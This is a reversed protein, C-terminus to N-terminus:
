RRRAARRRRSRARLALLSLGLAPALQDRSARASRCACSSPPASPGRDPPAAGLDGAATDVGAVDRTAADMQAIGLDDRSPADADPSDTRDVTADVLGADRADADTVDDNAMDATAADVIGADRVPLPTRPPAATADLDRLQPSFQAWPAACRATASAEGSCGPVPGRLDRLSMLPNLTEGGDTSWGLSYGDTAEDACVFLVGDHFRMCRVSATAGVRTFPGNRVSRYIGLARNATGYWATDGDGSLAFGDMPESTRAVMITSAGGDDSRRLETGLDAAVRLWLRDPRVPDVAAIWVSALDPFRAATPQFSAGGDDSRLITGVAGPRYGSLYVRRPDGPAVDITEVIYQSVSSTLRWSLGRDDSRLVQTMPSPGGYLTGTAFLVAGLADQTVDTVSEAGGSPATWACHNVSSVRMGTPLGLTIRRDSGLAISPDFSGVADLAEECVWDWSRGLDNSFVLGFTARLVILDNRAGPGVVLYNAQPFRGNGAATSAFCCASLAM